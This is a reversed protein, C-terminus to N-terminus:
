ESCSGDRGLTWAASAALQILVLLITVFGPAPIPAVGSTEDVVQVGDREGLHEVAYDRVDDRVGDADWGAANLLRQMGDPTADGATEALTWGNM